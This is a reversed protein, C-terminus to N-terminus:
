GLSYENTAQPPSATHALHGGGPLLCHSRPTRRANSIIGVSIKGSELTCFSLRDLQCLYLATRAHSVKKTSGEVLSGRGERVVAGVLVALLAIGVPISM